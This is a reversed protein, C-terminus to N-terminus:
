NCPLKIVFTAGTGVEGFASVQGHHRQVIKKCLALGLGTGEFKDKPNLRSFTDFIRTANSQDFGIGNDTILIQVSTTGAAQLIEAKVNVVPEVNARSFKLSNNILNYFLQHLLFRNGKITPLVPVNLLANKQAIVIELDSRIGDFVINLNVDELTDPTASITSYSLVGDIMTSMRSASSMIKNLYGRASDSGNTLEEELRHGFTKIKRVPEKLDHSVVHAFQLLDENSHQLAQNVEYLERTRDLVRYELATLMSKQATIDMLFAVGNESSGELMTYGVLVFIRNGDPRLLEVEYPRVFIQSGRAERVFREHLHRYEIATGEIWNYHGNLIESRSLGVLEAFAENCDYVNGDINWFAIPLMNSEYFRRFKAESEKLAAEANKIDTIDRTTGAVAEVNGNEDLVPTFIYDYIRRGLTAHPFSVEGRIPKKTAVVTDIEQHHMKAHWDEYGLESLGRGISDEWSRGWMTLLAENAYLFKYNLDFVYILDLTTGTVAEYLRKRKELEEKAIRLQQESLKRESIDGATGYWEIIEGRDDLIPIARSSTWGIGGDARLVRHELQFVAKNRVAHSVAEKVKQNDDPHIYKEIWDRNPEKTNALFDRGDLTWMETWDSNMRYIVESSATILARLHQDTTHLQREVQRRHGIEQAWEIIIGATRSLLEVAQRDEDFPEQPTNYYLAFTALLENSSSLIPTSWCARLGHSLALDRYEVWLRDTAIDSVMIEKKNFAACGCSGANPGVPIGNFNDIFTKPLSPASGYLLHKQYRDLLLISARVNGNAQAEVSQTLADLIEPLDAGNVALELAQKQGRIIIDNRRLTSDANRRETIDRTVALQSFTGDQNPLPVAHTEMFRKMGNLGIIEFQWSLSEGKCVRTHMDIWYNRHHPAIVDFICANEVQAFTEAEVMDLGASNMFILSGDPAVIKICEPTADIIAKLQLGDSAIREDNM